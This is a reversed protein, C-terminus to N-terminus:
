HAKKICFAFPVGVRPPKPLPLGMRKLQKGTHHDRNLTVEETGRHDVADLEQWQM